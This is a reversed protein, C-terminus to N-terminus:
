YHPPKEYRLGGDDDSEEGGEEARATRLEALEARLKVVEDALGRVVGDLESVYKELWALKEEIEEREQM